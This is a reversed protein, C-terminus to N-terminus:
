SAKRTDPFFTGLAFPLRSFAYGEPVPMLVAALRGFVLLTKRRVPIGLIHIEGGGTLFGACRNRGVMM